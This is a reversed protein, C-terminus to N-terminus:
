VTGTVTLVATGPTAIWQGTQVDQTYTAAPVTIIGPLTAFAGTIENYTYDVGETLLTGNFTVTLDSLIPNFLDTMIVDDTAAAETNGTNQILFTYTIRGNEAVTAPSLSKTISLQPGSQATITETATVPASLGGGAASVTNVITGEVNLPAFANTFAEYILTVNGGAPVTIGSITMPPGATVVPAPQLTGNIYYRISGEAYTLPYVTAGSASYGGLDDTITLGTFPASGANVLSIVYAVDQDPGYVGRVATKTMSLVELIEGVAINSNVTTDNYRLTAQNTFVAM